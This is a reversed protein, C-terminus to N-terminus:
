SIIHSLITSDSLGCVVFDRMHFAHQIGLAVVVCESYAISIAKARCCRNRSLAEVNRKYTRLKDQATDRPAHMSSTTNNFPIYQLL